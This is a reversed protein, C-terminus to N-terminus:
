TVIPKLRESIQRQTDSTELKEENKGTISVHDASYKDAFYSPKQNVM